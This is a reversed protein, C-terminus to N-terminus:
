TDVSKRRDGGHLWPLLSKVYHGNSWYSLNTTYEINSCPIPRNMNHWFVQCKWLNYSYLSSSSCCSWNVQWQVSITYVIYYCCIIKVWVISICQMAPYNTLVFMNPRDHPGQQNMNVYLGLKWIKLKRM